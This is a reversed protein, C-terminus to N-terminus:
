TEVARALDRVLKRGGGHHFQREMASPPVTLVGCSARAICYRPVAGHGLRRLVGARGAGVVLLDEESDVMGLLAEGPKGRVAVLRATIDVPVGGLAEHWATTLRRAAEAQWVRVLSPPCPIGRPNGEGGPPQWAIM